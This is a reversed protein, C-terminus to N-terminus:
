KTATPKPKQLYLWVFGTREAKQFKEQTEFVKQLEQM